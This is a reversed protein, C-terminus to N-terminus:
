LSNCKSIDLAYKTAMGPTWGSPIGRCQTYGRNELTSKYIMSFSIMGILTLLIFLLSIKILVKGAHTSISEGKTFVPILMIAYPMFFLPFLIAFISWPSFVIVPEYKAYSSLLYLGTYFVAMSLTLFLLFGLFSLFRQKM